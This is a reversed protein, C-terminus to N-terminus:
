GYNDIIVKFIDCQDNIHLAWFRSLVRVAVAADSQGLLILPLSDLCIIPNGHLNDPRIEGNITIKYVHTYVVYSIQTCLGAILKM